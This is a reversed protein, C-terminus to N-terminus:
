LANSLVTGGFGYSTGTGGAIGSGTGTGAGASKIEAVPQDAPVPDAILEPAIVEIESATRTNKAAATDIPEASELSQYRVRM